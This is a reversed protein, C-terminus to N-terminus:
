ALHRADGGGEYPLVGPWKLVLSFPVPAPVRGAITEPITVLQCIKPIYNDFM